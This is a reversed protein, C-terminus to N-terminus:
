TMMASLVSGRAKLFARLRTPYDPAVAARVSPREALAARWATLKPADPFFGFDAITEFMDFYRFVPAFAADVLHFRTGAFYRGDGLTLELRRLKVAIDERRKAFLAADTAGYFGAIDNLVSSAVEIWGRHEARDLADEPHLQPALTEDLYDCIAASEFLVRAGVMLLPVKGLPSIRRFWDPKAALDVAIRQHEVQKELLAVAARQVYPCLPHSVLTLRVDVTRGEVAGRMGLEDLSPALEPDPYMTSLM